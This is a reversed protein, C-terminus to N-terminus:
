FSAFKYFILNYNNWSRLTQDKDYSTPDLTGPAPPAAALGAPQFGLPSVSACGALVLLIALIFWLLIKMAM